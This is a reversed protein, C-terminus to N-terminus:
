KGPVIILSQKDEAGRESVECRLEISPRGHFLLWALINLGLAQWFTINQLGFIAPMLWNWLYYTPAAVLVAYLLGITITLVVIEIAGNGVSLTIKHRSKM